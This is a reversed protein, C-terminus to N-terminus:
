CFGASVKLRSGHPRKQVPNEQSGKQLTFKGHVHKFLNLSVFVVCKIKSFFCCLDFMCNNHYNIITSKHSKTSCDFNQYRHLLVNLFYLDFVEFQIWTEVSHHITHNYSQDCWTIITSNKQPSHKHDLFWIFGNTWIIAQQVLSPM